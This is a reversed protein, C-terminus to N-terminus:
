KEITQVWEKDPEHDSDGVFIRRKVRRNAPPIVNVFRKAETCVGNKIKFIKGHIVVRAPTKFLVATYPGGNVDREGHQLDDEMEKKAERETDFMQSITSEHGFRDYIIYDWGSFDDVRLAKMNTIRRREPTRPTGVWNCDEDHCYQQLKRDKCWRDGLDECGCKPCIKLKM